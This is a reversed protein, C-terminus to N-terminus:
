FAAKNRPQSPLYFDLVQLQFKGGLEYQKRRLNLNRTIASILIPGYGIVSSYLLARGTTEWGSAKMGVTALGVGGTIYLLQLGTVPFPKKERRKLIVQKVFNSKFALDNIYITDNRLLLIRGEILDDNVLRLRINDGETWTRVKHGNKKVFLFSKQAFCFHTSSLVLVLLLLPAWRM